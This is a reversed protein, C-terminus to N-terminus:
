DMRSAIFNNYKSASIQKKKFKLRMKRVEKDQPFSGITTTPFLPLELYKDQFKKRSAHQAKTWAITNFSKDYSNQTKGKVNKSWNKADKTLTSYSAQILELEYLREEAFSLLSKTKSNMKTENKLTFPLHMLPASNSILIKEKDLKTTKKIAKLLRIKEAINSRRVDRGDVVGCILKKDKPFSIKDLNKLNDTGHVFDLGIGVIPLKVLEKLFDVSDYYTVINVDLGGPIIKKYNKIINIIDTKSVDQCFAPEEIHVSKVGLKVLKSLLKKYELTLDAFTKNFNGEVRSLKLFTYPGILAVPNKKDKGSEGFSEGPKNWSLKFKQGKKVVPVLYHYNTNFYKKMELANKGRGYAYYDDINKPKYVGFIIATDLMNDYCSFEGLPFVDVYKNYTSRRAKEIDSLAFILEKSSSRKAWYDETARKFERRKGLRPFGYAYTQM